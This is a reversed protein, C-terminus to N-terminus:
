AQRGRRRRRARRGGGHGARGQGQSAGPPRRTAPGAEEAQRRPGGRASHGRGGGGTSTAGAEEARRRRRPRPRRGSRAGDGLRFWVSSSPNSEDAPNQRVLGVRIQASYEGGPRVWGRGVEMWVDSFPTWGMRGKLWVCPLATTCIPRSNQHAEKGAGFCRLKFTSM